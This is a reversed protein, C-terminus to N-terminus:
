TEKNHRRQCPRVPINQQVSYSTRTSAADTGAGCHAGGAAVSVGLLWVAASAETLLM